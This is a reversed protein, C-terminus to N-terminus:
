IRSSLCKNCEGYSFEKDHPGQIEEIIVGCFLCKVVLKEFSQEQNDLVDKDFISVIKNM